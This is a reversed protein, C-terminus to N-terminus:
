STWPLTLSHGEDGEEYTSVRHGVAQKKEELTELCTGEASAVRYDKRGM